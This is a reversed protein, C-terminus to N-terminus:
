APEIAQHAVHEVQRANLTVSELQVEFGDMNTGRSIHGGGAQSLRAWRPGHM